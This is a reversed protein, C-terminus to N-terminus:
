HCALGNGKVHRAITSSHCEILPVCDMTRILTDILTDIRSHNLTDILTDILTYISLDLRATCCDILPM